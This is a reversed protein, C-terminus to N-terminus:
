AVPVDAGEILGLRHRSCARVHGSAPRKQTQGRDAPPTTARKISGMRDRDYVVMGGIQCPSHIVPLRARPRGEPMVRFRAFM